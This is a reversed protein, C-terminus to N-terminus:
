SLAGPRCARTILGECDEDIASDFMEWVERPTKGEIEILRLMPKPEYLFPGARVVKAVAVLGVFGKIPVEAEARRLEEVAPRMQDVPYERANYCSVVLKTYEYRM